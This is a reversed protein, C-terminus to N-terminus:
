AGRIPPRPSGARYALWRLVFGALAVLVAGTIIVSMTITGPDPRPALSTAGTVEAKWDAELDAITTGYAQQIAESIGSGGNIFGLLSAMREAGFTDIMYKVVSWSQAYFTRVDDPRGPVRNMTRLSLLSGDRASREVTAKRAHTESEFYTALGENLWAPVIGFASDVAESMLLHVMEHVMGDADLGALVFLGHERFAFGGFLHGRTAAASVRPFVRQAERSGNVIVAKMAPVSDVGLAAAAEEIRRYAEEAVESVRSESRGHWLVVLQGHRLERWRYRPDRYQLSVADTELINGAADVIRYRYEVDVGSPIYSTGSTKLNYEASVRTAPTFEPYGYIQVKGGALRYFLTVETIPAEAEAELTFALHDPFKVEHSNALVRIPREIQSSPVTEPAGVVVVALAIGALWSLTIV